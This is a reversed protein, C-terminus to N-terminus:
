SLFAYLNMMFHKVWFLIDENYLHIGHQSIEDQLASSMEAPCFKSSNKKIGFFQTDVATSKFIFLSPQRRWASSQWKKKIGQVTKYIYVPLKQQFVM